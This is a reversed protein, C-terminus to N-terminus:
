LFYVNICVYLFVSYVYKRDNQLYMDINYYIRVSIFFGILLVLNNLKNIINNKM